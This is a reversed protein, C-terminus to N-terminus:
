GHYKRLQSITHALYDFPDSQQRNLVEGSIYGSYNIDSLRNRLEEYFATNIDSPPMFGPESTHIHKIYRSHQFIQSLNEQNELISKIDLQIFIRRLQAENLLSVAELFTHLYECQQHPLPEIHLLSYKLTDDLQHLFDLFIRRADEKPQDHLKRAQASGFVLNETKLEHALEDYMRIYEVLEEKKRTPGFIELDPRTYTLSHLASVSVGYRNLLSTLWSLEKDSIAKPETFISNLSLEVAYVGNDTLAHLFSEFNDPHQGWIINSISFKM